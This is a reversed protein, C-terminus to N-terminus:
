SRERYTDIPSTSTASMRVTSVGILPLDAVNVQCDVQVSLTGEQGPDTGFASVDVTTTPTCQLVTDALMTEATSQATTAADGANRAISADRAAQYAANTVDRYTLLTRGAYFLVMVVAFLGVILVVVEASASGRDERWGMGSM